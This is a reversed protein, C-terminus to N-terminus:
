SGSPPKERDPNTIGILRAKEAADILPSTNVATDIMSQMIHGQASILVGIAFGSLAVVVGAIIGGWVEFNGLIAGSNADVAAIIIIIAGITLSLFKVVTGMLVIGSAVRYGDHYRQELSRAAAPPKRLFFGAAFALLLGLGGLIWWVSGPPLPSSGKVPPGIGGGPQASPGGMEQSQGGNDAGQQQGGQEERPLSGSGSVSFELAKGPLANKLLLTQVAANQPVSRFVSGAGATFTMSKPLQVVFNNVPMPVKPNFTFKGSYPLHYRVAFLTQNEGEDPQIPVNFSYHGKQSLPRPMANTPLGSPRTAEAGDLVAGPPLVFEFTNASFQTVAPSSTNHVVYQETVDLEGNESELQLIDDEISIGDVKAAADYVTINGPGGGQPAAIFYGAGQHTARVLYPGSGPESLSYHGSGDTTAHAAAKMGAQVDLLEVTDGVAPKGTTKNTVTGTITAAQALAGMALLSLAFTRLVYQTSKM